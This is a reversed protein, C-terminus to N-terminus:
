TGASARERDGVLWTVTAFGAAAALVTAAGSTNAPDAASRLAVEAGVVALGILPLVLRPAAVALLMLAIVTGMVVLSAELRGDTLDAAGALLLGIELAAMIMILLTGIRATSIAGIMFAAVATIGVMALISVKQSPPHPGGVVDVVQVFIGLGGIVLDVLGVSALAAIGAVIGAIAASSPTAEFAHMVVGLAWGTPLSALAVSLRSRPRYRRLFSPQHASAQGGFQSRPRAGRVLFLM